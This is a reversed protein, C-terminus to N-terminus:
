KPTNAVFNKSVKDLEKAVQQSKDVFLICAAKCHYYTSALQLLEVQLTKNEGQRDLDKYLRVISNERSFSLSDQTTHLDISGKAIGGPVVIFLANIIISTCKYKALPSYNFVNCTLNGVVKDLKQLDLTDDMDFLTFTDQEKEKFRQLEKFQQSILDNKEKCEL